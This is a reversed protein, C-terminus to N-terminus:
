QQLIRARKRVDDLSLDKKLVIYECFAHSSAPRMDRPLASRMDSSSGLGRTPGPAAGGATDAWMWFPNIEINGTGLFADTVPKSPNGPLELEGLVFNPSKPDKNRWGNGGSKTLRDQAFALTLLVKRM